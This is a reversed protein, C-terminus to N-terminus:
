LYSQVKSGVGVLLGVGFTTLPHTTSKLFIQDFIPVGLRSELVPRFIRLLVGGLFLGATFTLKWNDKQISSEKSASASGTKTNDVNGHDDAPPSTSQSASQSSLLPSQEPNSESRFAAIIKSVSDGYIGSVGLVNGNYWLLHYVSSGIMLGGVLPYIYSSM